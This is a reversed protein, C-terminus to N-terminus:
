RKSLYVLGAFRFTNMTVTLTQYEMFRIFEFVSERRTNKNVDVFEISKRESQAAVVRIGQKKLLVIMRYTFVFEGQVMVVVDSYQQIKNFYEEVMALREEGRETGVIEDEALMIVGKLYTKIVKEREEKPMKFLKVIKVILATILCLCIIGLSIYLVIKETDM